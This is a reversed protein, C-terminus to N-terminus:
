GHRGEESSQVILPTDDEPTVAYIEVGLEQALSFVTGIQMEAVGAEAHNVTKKSRSALGSVGGQSFGEYKRAKRLLRGLDEVSTIKHM